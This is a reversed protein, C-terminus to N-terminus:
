DVLEMKAIVIKIHAEVDHYDEDNDEHPNVPVIYTVTNEYLLPNVMFKAPDTDKDRDDDDKDVGFGNVTEKAQIFMQKAIKQASELSSCFKPSNELVTLECEAKAMDRLPGLSDDVDDFANLFDGYEIISTKIHKTVLYVVGAGSVM